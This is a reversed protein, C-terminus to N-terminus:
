SGATPDEEDTGGAGEDGEDDAIIVRGDIVLKVIEFDVDDDAQELERYVDAYRLKRERQKRELWIVAVVAEVDSDGLAKLLTSQTFTTASKLEGWAGFPVKRYDLTLRCSDLRFTIQAKAVGVAM